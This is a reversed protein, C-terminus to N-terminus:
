QKVLRRTDKLAILGKKKYAATKAQQLQKVLVLADLM